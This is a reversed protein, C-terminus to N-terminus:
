LSVLDILAAKNILAPNVPGFNLPVLKHLMRSLCFSIGEVVNTHGLDLVRHLVRQAYTDPNWAMHDLLPKMHPNKDVYRRATNSDVVPVEVNAVLIKRTRESAFPNSTSQLFRARV